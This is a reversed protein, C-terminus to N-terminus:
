STSTTWSFLDLQCFILDSVQAQTRTLDEQFLGNQKFQLSWDFNATNLRQSQSLHCEHDINHNIVVTQIRLSGGLRWNSTGQPNHPYPSAFSPASKSTVPM